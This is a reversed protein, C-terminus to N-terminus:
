SGNRSVPLGVRFVTGRGPESDVVISGGHKEIVDRAVYLGVGTGTNKTTFHLEFIRPIIGSPIGAGTDSVEVAARDESVQLSLRLTGGKPMADVANVALNLIAQKVRQRYGNLRAAHDPVDLEVAVNQEAAVPEILRRVDEIVDRLSFGREETDAPEIEEALLTLAHSLEQVQKKIVHLSRAEAPVEDTQGGPAIRGRVLDAHLMVASIPQKLDEVVARYLRRANRFQAAHGLDMAMRRMSEEDKVLLLFGTCAEEVIPHAEISLDHVVGDIEFRVESRGPMTRRTESQAIAKRVADSVAPFCASLDLDHGCGLMDRARENAFEIEGDPNVVALGVEVLGSLVSFVSSYDLAPKAEM